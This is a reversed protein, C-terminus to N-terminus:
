ACVVPKLVLADTEMEGAARGPLSGSLLGQQAWLLGFMLGPSKAVGSDLVFPLTRELPLALVEIAEGAGALGGGDSSRM